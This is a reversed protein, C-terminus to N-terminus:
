ASGSRPVFRWADGVPTLRGAPESPFHAGFVVADGAAATALLDIRTTRALVPDDDSVFALDPRRVAGPPPHRRRDAARHGRGVRGVAVRARAHPRPDAGPAARRRPRCRGRRPRGARRRLDAQDLRRPDLRGRRRRRGGPVRGRHGRLRPPGRHVDPGVPRRGPAHGMRRPRRPPAHARRPRRRGPRLGGRPVARMFPWSQDHWFALERHKGNGVCPDVVVVREGIELVFAQVRMGITGADLDAYHPALWTEATIAGPDAEPFFVAPPIGDTQAEVVSTVRVDGITWRRTAERM